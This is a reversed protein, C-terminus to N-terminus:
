GEYLNRSFEPLEDQAADWNEIANLWELATEVAAVGTSGFQDEILYYLDNNKIHRM